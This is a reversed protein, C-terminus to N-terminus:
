VPQPRVYCPTMKSVMELCKKDHKSLKYNHDHTCRDNHCNGLLFHVNCLKLKKVRRIDENPITTDLQDIRQGLRNRDVGPTSPFEKVTAPSVPSKGPQASPVFPAATKAAWSTLPNPIAAPNSSSSTTTTNSSVRSLPNTPTSLNGAIASARQPVPSPMVPTQPVAWIQHNQAIKSDRFLTNFKTTKFASQLNALEKEFPVGEIVTIHDIAQIDGLREELLRAYGNDHSIGLFIQHCHCDYLHARFM